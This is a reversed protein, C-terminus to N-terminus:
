ETAFALIIILLIFLIFGVVALIIYIGNTDWFSDPDIVPPTEGGGLPCSITAQAVDINVQSNQGANVFITQTCITSPCNGLNTQDIPIFQSNSQQCPIYWCSNQTPPSASAFVAFLPDVTARNVCLCDQSCQNATCFRSLTTQRQAATLRTNYWDSCYGGNNADITSHLISCNSLASPCASSPMVPNYTPCQNTSQLCYHPMIIDDWVQSNNRGRLTSTDWVPRGNTGFANLWTQVSAPTNFVNVDYTCTVQRGQPLPNLSDFGSDENTTWVAPVVAPSAIRPCINPDVESCFSGPLGICATNNAYLWDIKGDNTRCTPSQNFSRCCNGFTDVTGCYGGAPPFFNPTSPLPYAYFQELISPATSM